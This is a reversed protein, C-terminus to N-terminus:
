FNPKPMFVPNSPKCIRPDLYRVTVAQSSHGMVQQANGGAAHTYSAKSKRLRHFRMGCGKPAYINSANLIDRFWKGVTEITVDRPFLLERKPDHIKRIAEAVHPPLEYCMGEKDKQTEAQCYLTASDFLVDISRLSLLATYRLGTEWCTLLLATWWDAANSPLNWARATALVKGFEETTLALPVRKPERLKRWRPPKDIVAQDEDAAFRLLVMLHNCYTNVSVPKISTLLHSQFRSLLETDIKDIPTERAFRKWCNLATRYAVVTKPSEGVLRLPLYCDEFFEPLTPKQAFCIM